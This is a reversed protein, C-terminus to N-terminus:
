LKVLLPVPKAIMPSGILLEDTPLTNVIEQDAVNSPPCCMHGEAIVGDFVLGMGKM